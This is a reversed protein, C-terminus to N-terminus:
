FSSACINKTLFCAAQDQGIKLGRGISTYAHDFIDFIIEPYGVLMMIRRLLNPGVQIEPARCKAHGDLRIELFEPIVQHGCPVVHLVQHVVSISKPM